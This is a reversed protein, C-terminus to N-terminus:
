PSRARLGHDARPRGDDDPRGRRTTYRPLAVTNFMDQQEGAADGDIFPYYLLYDLWTVTLNQSTVATAGAAANVLMARHIYKQAPRSM